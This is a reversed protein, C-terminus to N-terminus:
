PSSTRLSSRSDASCAAARSRTRPASHSTSSAFASSAPTVSSGLGGISPESSRALLNEPSEWMFHAGTTSPVTSGSDGSLATPAPRARPMGIRAPAVACSTTASPYSNASCRSASWRRNASSTIVAVDGSRGPLPRPGYGGLGGGLCALVGRGRASAVRCRRSGATEPAATNRREHHTPDPAPSTIIDSPLAWPREEAPKGTPQAVGPSRPWTMGKGAGAVEFRAHPEGAGPEGVGNVPPM